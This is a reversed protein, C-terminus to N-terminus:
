VWEGERYFKMKGVPAGCCNVKQWPSCTDMPPDESFIVVRGGDPICATFNEKIELVQAETLHEFHSGNKVQLNLDM